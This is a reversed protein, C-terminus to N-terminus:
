GEHIHYGWGFRLSFVVGMWFSSALFYVM